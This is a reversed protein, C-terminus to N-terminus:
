SPPGTRMVMGSDVSHGTRAIAQFYLRDGSVEFLM